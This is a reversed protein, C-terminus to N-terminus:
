SSFSFGAPISVTDIMTELGRVPSVSVSTRSSVPSVLPTNASVTPIGSDVRLASEIEILFLIPAFTEEKLIPMDKKAKVLTPEVYCGGPYKKEDTLVKGGCLIEGGQERIVKLAREMLAAAEPDVLPGM